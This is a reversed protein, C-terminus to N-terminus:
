NGTSGSIAPNSPSVGSRRASARGLRCGGAYRESAAGILFPQQRKGPTRVVVVAVREAVLHVITAFALGRPLRQLPRDVVRHDHPVRCGHRVPAVHDAHRRGVRRGVGRGRCEGARSSLVVNSTSLAGGVMTTPRVRRSPLRVVTLKSTLSASEATCFASYESSPSRQIMSRDARRCRRSAADLLELQREIGVGSARPTITLAVSASLLTVLM